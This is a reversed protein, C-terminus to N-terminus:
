QGIDGIGHRPHRVGFQIGLGVEVQDPFEVDGTGRGHQHQVGVAPDAVAGDPQRSSGIQERREACDDGSRACGWAQGRTQSYEQPM